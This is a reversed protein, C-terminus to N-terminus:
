KQLDFELALADRMADTAAAIAADSLVARGLNTHLVTGTLNFVPRVNLQSDDELRAAALGAIDASQHAVAAGSAVAQRVLDIQQRVAAVTALRGYREVAETAAATKLVEDVSPITRLDPSPARM